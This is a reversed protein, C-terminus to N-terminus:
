FIRLSKGLSFTKCHLGNTSILPWTPCKSLEDNRTKCLRELKISLTKLVVRKVLRKTKHKVSVNFNRGGGTFVLSSSPEFLLIKQLASPCDSGLTLHILSSLCGNGDCMYTLVTQFSSKQFYVKYGLIIFWIVFYGKTVCAGSYVSCSGRKFYRRNGFLLLIKDCLLRRLVCIYTFVFQLGRKHFYVKHGLFTFKIVFYSKMVCTRWYVNCAERKCNLILRIFCYDEIQYWTYHHGTHSQLLVFPPQHEITYRPLVSTSVRADRGILLARDVDGYEDVDDTLWDDKSENFVKSRSCVFYSPLYCKWNIQRNVPPPPVGTEPGM